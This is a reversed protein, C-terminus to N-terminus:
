NKLNYIYHEACLIILGPVQDLMTARSIKTNTRCSSWERLLTSLWSYIGRLSSLMTSSARKAWLSWLRCKNQVPTVRVACECLCYSVISAAPIYGEFSTCKQLGTSLCMDKQKNTQKSTSFIKCKCKQCCPSFFSGNLSKESFYM